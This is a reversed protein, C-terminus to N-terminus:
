LEQEKLFRKINSHKIENAIFLDFDIQGQNNAMFAKITDVRENPLDEVKGDVIEDLVIIAYGSSIPTAGATITAENPPLLSFTKTLFRGDMKMESRTLTDKKWKINFENSIQDLSVGEEIKSLIAQAKEAMLQNVKEELVLDQVRAKVEEFGQLKSPRYSKIRLVLYGKPTQIVDSNQQFQVVDESFAAKLVEPSSFLEPASNRSFLPSALIDLDLKDALPQLSDPYEYAYMVMEDAMSLLKDEGRQKKIESFIESKVSEYSKVSEVKRDLLKIIHIGFPTTIPESVDGIEKLKFAATEFEPVTEGQKIWDLEGGLKASGVDDSNKKALDSFNEGLKISKMLQNIKELAQTRAEDNNESTILIHAVKIQEPVTFESHHADYYAQAEAPTVKEQEIIRQTDLFLYELEVAEESMLDDANQNYYDHLQEDSIEIAKEYDKKNLYAYQVKRKQNLLSIQKNFENELIFSTDRIAGELQAMLMNNKVIEYFENQSLHLQQLLQMFRDYSFQNNERLIPIAKIWENIQQESVVLGIKNAAQATVKERTQITHLAKTM